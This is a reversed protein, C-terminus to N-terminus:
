DAKEATLPFIKKLLNMVVAFMALVALTGGMGVVIMTFGFELNSM